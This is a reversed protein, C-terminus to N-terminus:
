RLAFFVIFIIDLIWIAINVEKAKKAGVMAVTYVIFGLAMGDSISYTLIMSIICVFGSACFIMNQKWDVDSLQAAMLIGVVVLAPATVASTVLSGVVPYFFMSLIFLLGTVIATLGTRGGAEIGSSSEVFCTITSTGFTSGIITGISDTLMAKKGGEVSGDKHLRGCRNALAM